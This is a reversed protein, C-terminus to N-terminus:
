GEGQSGDQQLTGEKNWRMKKKKATENRRHRWIVTKFILDLNKFLQTNLTTSVAGNPFWKGWLCSSRLKSGLVQQTLALTSYFMSTIGVSLPPTLTLLAAFLLIGFSGSWGTQGFQHAGPKILSGSDFILTSLSWHLGKVNVKPRWMCGCMHMCVQVCMHQKKKINPSNWSDEIM